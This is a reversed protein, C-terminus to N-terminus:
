KSIEAIGDDTIARRMCREFHAKLQTFPYSNPQCLINFLIHGKCADTSVRMGEPGDKFNVFISNLPPFDPHKMKLKCHGSHQMRIEFGPTLNLTFLSSGEEDHPLADKYTLFKNDKICRTIDPGSGPILHQQLVSFITEVSLGHFHLIFIIMYGCLEKQKLLKEAQAKAKAADEAAWIARQKADAEAKKAAAAAIELDILKPRRPM